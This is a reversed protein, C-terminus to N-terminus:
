VLLCVCGRLWLGRSGLGRCGGRCFRWGGRTACEGDGSGCDAGGGDVVAPRRVADVVAAGVAAISCDSEAKAARRERAAALLARTELFPGNEPTTGGAVGVGIGCLSDGARRGLKDRVNPDADYRGLNKALFPIARRPTPFMACDQTNTHARPSPCPLSHPYFPIAECRTSMLVSSTIAINNDSEQSGVYETGDHLRLMCDHIPRAPENRLSM